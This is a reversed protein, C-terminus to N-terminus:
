KKAFKYIGYFLGFLGIAGAVKIWDIKIDDDCDDCSEDEYSACVGDNICSPDEECDDCNLPIEWDRCVDDNICSCSKFEPHGTCRQGTQIYTTCYRTREWTSGVELCESWEGCGEKCVYSGEAGITFDEQNPNAGGSEYLTIDDDRDDYLKVFLTYGTDEPIASDLVLTFRLGISIACDVNNFNGIQEQVVNGYKNEIIFRAYDIEDYCKSIDIPSVINGSLTSGQAYLAPQEDFTIAKLMFLPNFTSIVMDSELAMSSSFLLLIPVILILYKVLPKGKPVM